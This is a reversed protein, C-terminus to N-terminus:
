LTLFSPWLTSRRQWFRPSSSAVCTALANISRLVFTLVSCSESLLMRSSPAVAMALANFLLEVSVVSYRSLWSYRGSFLLMPYSPALAMASANFSLEVSWLRHSETLLMPASPAVAIAATNFSLVVSWCSPSPLFLRCSLPAM